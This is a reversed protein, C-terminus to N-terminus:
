ALQVGSREHRARDCLPASPAVDLVPIEHQGSPCICDVSRNALSALQLHDVALGNSCARIGQAASVAIITDWGCPSKDHPSAPESPMPLYEVAGLLVLFRHQHSDAGALSMEDHHGGRDAGPNSAASVCDSRDHGHPRYGESHSHSLTSSAFTTALLMWAALVGRLANEVAFKNMVLGTPIGREAAQEWLCGPGRYSQGL